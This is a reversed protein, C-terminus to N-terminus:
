CAKISNKVYEVRTRDTVNRQCARLALSHIRRSSAFSGTASRTLAPKDRIYVRKRKPSIDSRYSRSRSQKGIILFRGRTWGLGVETSASSM